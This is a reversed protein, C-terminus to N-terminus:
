RGYKGMLQGWALIHGQMAKEVDAKRAGAKLGLTTDLAYVKFYYRHAPGRPPCPGNYGSRRFDNTGQVGVGQVGEPLERIDAPIDYLVWHVFTGVPADPDDVILALSKTGEPVGSWSLQPSIDQGDCTHKKPITSGENFATSTVQIAMEVEGEAPAKEAPPRCGTWLLLAGSFFLLWLGRHQGM